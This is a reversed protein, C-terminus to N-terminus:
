HIKAALKAPVPPLGEGVYVGQSASALGTNAQPLLNAMLAAVSNGSPTSISGPATGGGMLTTASTAEHETSGGPIQQIGALATASPMTGLGACVTHIASLSFLLSLVEARRTDEGRGQHSRCAILYTNGVRPRGPDDRPKAGRLSAVMRQLRGGLVHVGCGEGSDDADPTRQTRCDSVAKEVMAQLM